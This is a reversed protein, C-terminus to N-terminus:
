HNSIHVINLNNVLLLIVIVVGNNEINKIDYKIYIKEIDIIM